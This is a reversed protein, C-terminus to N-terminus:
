KGRTTYLLHQSPNALLMGPVQQRELDNWIKEVAHDEFASLSVWLVPPPQVDRVLIRFGYTITKFELFPPDVEAGMRDSLWVKLAEVKEPIDAPIGDERM